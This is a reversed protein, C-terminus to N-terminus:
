LVCSITANEAWNGKQTSVAKIKGAQYKELFALVIAERESGRRTEEDGLLSLMDHPLETLYNFERDPRHDFHGTELMEAITANDYEERPRQGDAPVFYHCDGHSSIYRYQHGRIFITDVNEFTYRPAFASKVFDLM